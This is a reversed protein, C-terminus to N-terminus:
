WSFKAADLYVQAHRRIVSNTPNPPAISVHALRAFIRWCFREAITGRHPALRSFNYWRQPEIRKTAFRESLPTLDAHDQIHVEDPLAAAYETEPHGSIWCWLLRKDDAAAYNTRGNVRPVFDCHWNPICPYNEPMLMHIKVDLIWQAPDNVPASAYLAALEPLAQQAQPLPCSILGCPLVSLMSEPFVLDTKPGAFFTDLIVM